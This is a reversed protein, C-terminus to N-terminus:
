CVEGFSQPNATPRPSLSLGQPSCGGHQPCIPCCPHAPCSCLRQVPCLRPLWPPVPHRAPSLPLAQLSPSAAQPSPASSVLRHIASLGEGRNTSGLRARPLSLSEWRRDSVWSPFTFRPSTVHHDRALGCCASSRWACTPVGQASSGSRAGCATARPPRESPWGASPGVPHAQTPRSTHATLVRRCPTHRHTCVQAHTLTLAM